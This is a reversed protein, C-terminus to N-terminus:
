RQKLQEFYPIVIWIKIFIKKFLYYKYLHMDIWINTVVKAFDYQCSNKINTANIM